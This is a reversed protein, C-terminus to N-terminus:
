RYKQCEGNKFVLVFLWKDINLKKTWYESGIRRALIIDGECLAYIYGDDMSDDDVRFSKYKSPM